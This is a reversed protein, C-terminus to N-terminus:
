RCTFAVPKTEAVVRDLALARVSWLLTGPPIPADDPLTVPDEAYRAEVTGLTHGSADVVTVRYRDAQPAASFRFSLSRCAVVEGALPSLPRFAEVEVGREVPPAGRRGPSSLYVEIGIATLLVAAAALLLNRKTGSRGRAARRFAARETESIPPADPRRDLALMTVGARCTACVALHAEVRERTEEPLAGELYCATVVEDPHDDYSASRPRPSM